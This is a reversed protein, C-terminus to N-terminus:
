FNDEEVIGSLLGILVCFLTFGEVSGRQRLSIAELSVSYCLRMLFIERVAKGISVDESFNEAHLLYPVWQVLTYCFDMKQGFCYDQM